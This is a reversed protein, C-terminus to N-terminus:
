EHILKEIEMLMKRADKMHGKCFDVEMAKTPDMYRITIRAPEGCGEKDCKIKFEEM